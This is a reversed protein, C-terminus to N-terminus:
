GALCAQVMQDPRPTGSEWKREMEAYRDKWKEMEREGDREEKKKREERGEM